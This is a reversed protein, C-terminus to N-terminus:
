KLGTYWYEIVDLAPKGTLSSTPDQLAVVPNYGRISIGRIWERSAIVPLIANYIMAQEGLDLNASAVEEPLFLGDNYCDERLLACGQASGDISPYGLAITIPKMTSRYIEYILSDVVSTFGTTIDEASATTGTALPTDVSLYIGDFSDIFNPLPDMEQNANTGWIIQGHYVSRLDSIFSVWVEDSFEPIDTESGNPYLGGIFAPLTAKGGLILLETGTNEALRAYSFIFQHYSDFWQRWWNETHQATGWTSASNDTSSIQPFLGQELGLFKSANLLSTMEYHFPTDGIAPQISPNQGDFFWQPSFIVTGAGIEVLNSIGVPAFTLWSPNMQPSLEIATRYDAPKSPLYNEVVDTGNKNAQWNQWHDVTINVTQPTDAPIVQPVQQEQTLNTAHECEENRCVRYSLPTSDDLPSYLIYLYKGDGLPWLPIPETWESTMFQIFKADQPATGPTFFVEFTIPEIKPARWSAISLNITVDRNPVILQRTFVGNSTVQEANWYGDGMTFKFRLDTGQYMLLTVTHTGNEAPTLAPTRVPKISMGGPLDSFTNGLQVVNGALYIPAGLADQPATVNFTINVPAMPILSVQAPTTMGSSIEAGQQHSKYRGNIPYFVVNHLGQSLNELVFKGNADSFTLQGAASVLIDPIPLKTDRDTLTGTLRGIENSLPEGQWALLLDTVTDSDRVCLLRYKVPDGTSNIEPQYSSGIKAYRYKIISGTQNQITTSFTLESQPELEYRIINNPLGSVDDLIELVVTEGEALPHPLVVSLQTNVIPTALDLLDNVSGDSREKSDAPM